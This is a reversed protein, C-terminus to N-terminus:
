DSGGTMQGDLAIGLFARLFQAPAPRRERGAVDMPDARPYRGSTVSIPCPSGLPDARRGIRRNEAHASREISTGVDPLGPVTGWLVLDFLFVLVFLILAITHLHRRMPERRAPEFALIGWGAGSYVTSCRVVPPGHLM